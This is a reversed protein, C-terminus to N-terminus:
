EKTTVYKSLSFMCKWREDFIQNTLLIRFVRHSYHLHRIQMQRVMCSYVVVVAAAPDVAAAVVFVTRGPPRGMM